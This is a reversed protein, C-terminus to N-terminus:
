SSATAARAPAWGFATTQWRPTDRLSSPIWGLRGSSSSSSWGGAVQLSRLVIPDNGDLVRLLGESGVTYVEGESLLLGYVDGRLKLDGVSRVDLASGLALVLLFVLM